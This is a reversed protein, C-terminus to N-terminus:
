TACEYEELMSILIKIQEKQEADLAADLAADRAAEQAAGWASAQADYYASSWAAERGTARTAHWEASRAARCAAALEQDSIEGRLWKRKAEVAAISRPDPNDARQLARDACRCAFEHLIAAPILEERLVAWLRDDSSIRNLRLIDLANASGGLKRAYYRLRRMGTDNNAWCPDWRLFEDLTVRPLDM